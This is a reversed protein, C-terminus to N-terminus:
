RNVQGYVGGIPWDGGSFSVSCVRCHMHHLILSPYLEGSARGAVHGVERIM